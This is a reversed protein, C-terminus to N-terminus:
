MLLRRPRTAIAYSHLMSYFSLCLWLSLSPPTTAYRRRVMAESLQLAWFPTRRKSPGPWPCLRAWPVMTTRGGLASPTGVRRSQPRGGCIFLSSVCPTTSYMMHLPRAVAGVDTTWLSPSTCGEASAAPEAGAAPEEQVPAPVGLVSSTACSVSHLVHLQFIYCVCMFFSCGVSHLVHLLAVHCACILSRTVWHTFMSRSHECTHTCLAMFFKRPSAGQAGPCGQVWSRTKSVHASAATTTPSLRASRPFMAICLRSVASGHSTHMM